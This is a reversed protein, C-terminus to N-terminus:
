STSKTVELFYEELDTKGMEVTYVKYGNKILLTNAKGLHDWSLFPFELVSGNIKTDYGSDSLLAAAGRSDNTKLSIRKEYSNQLSDISGQFLLKGKNLIGVHTAVKEVESLLHSSVFVTKQQTRVLSLLLQRIEIIGKPDLGNTPEDLILLDPDPLLALAIGLRQKMGLSYNKVKKARDNLLGVIELVEPVRKRSVCTLITRNILNEEGSMHHYLAPQEVLSGIKSLVFSRVTRIEKEFLFINKKQSHLLGLLLKITTTKGSGNPGLFGYICGAPVQLSLQELVVHDKFQFDLNKTEIVYNNDM